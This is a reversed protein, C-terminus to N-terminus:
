PQTWVPLLRDAGSGVGYHGVVGRGLDALALVTAIAGVEAELDDVTAVQTGLSDNARVPALVEDRDADGAEVLSVVLALRQEVAATAFGEVVGRAGLSAGRAVALVVATATVDAVVPPDEDVGEITVFGNDVLTGLLDEADNASGNVAAPGTALRATLVRWVADRLDARKTNSPLRLLNALAQADERTALALRPEIWAIGPVEAGATRALRVAQEVADSDVGRIAVFVAPTATLRDTVAFPATSDIAGEARELDTVLSGNEARQANANAEVTDIRNQLGEITPQGLVGYGMVIGVALALFVAVLSVLHFRFNIM